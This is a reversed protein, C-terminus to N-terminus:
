EIDFIDESDTDEACSEEENLYADKREDDMNDWRGCGGGRRVPKKGGGKKKGGKGMGYYRPRALWQRRKYQRMKPKRSQLYKRIKNIRSLLSKVQPSSRRSSAPRGRNKLEHSASRDVERQIMSETAKKGKLMNATIGLGANSVASEAEKKTLAPGKGTQQKSRQNKLPPKKKTSSTKKPPSKSKPKSKPLTKPKTKPKSLSKPKLKPKSKAKPKSKKKGGGRGRLPKNRIKELQSERFTVTNFNAM